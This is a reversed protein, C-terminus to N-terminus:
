EKLSVTFTKFVKDQGTYEQVINFEFKDVGHTKILDNLNALSDNILDLEEMIPGKYDESVLEFYKTEFSDESEKVTIWNPDRNTEVTYVQGVTLQLGYHKPMSKCLVKDGVNFKRM